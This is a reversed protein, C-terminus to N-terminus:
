LLGKKREENVKSCANVSDQDGAIAASFVATIASLAQRLNQLDKSLQMYFLALVVNFVGSLAVAVVMGENM